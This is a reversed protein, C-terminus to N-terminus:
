IGGITEILEKCYKILEELKNNKAMGVIASGYRNGYNPNSSVIKQIIRDQIGKKCMLVSSAVTDSVVDGHERLIREQYERCTETSLLWKECENAMGVITMEKNDIHANINRQIFGLKKNFQIIEGVVYAYVLKSVANEHETKLNDM